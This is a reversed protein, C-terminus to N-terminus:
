KLSIVENDLKIKGMSLAINLIKRIYTRDLVWMKILDNITLTTHLKLLEVLSEIRDEYSTRKIGKMKYDVDM